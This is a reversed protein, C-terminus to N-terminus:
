AGTALPAPQDRVLTHYLDAYLGGAALLERHRGTEVVRGHEVVVIRDADVITSLRHAIVLATRGQLAVELARQIAAENESDLHSTAEDLIVVAPDKLLMRAIALRQKEGGSLRYGREGVVTDFGDPLSEIVDLVQAARCADRLEANTAGPKAYRLNAGISDHFLHPDQSVVGISRRLTDLRVDRVDHGDFRVHGASVDYLRAVLSILTSKGAGSPGVIAVTEGPAADFDVDHLVTESDRSLSGDAALSALTTTSAAPYAFSVGEFRVAGQPHELDVAGDGDTIANPADLVEFVRDFSVFATLVDVRANTLASLPQYIRGVLLGMAVLDGSPLSGSIVLQSGVWYVGATGLAAVVGLGLMFTRGYIATRVGIDRVKGARDSFAATEDDHRGFLTVLQAGAVGFRETMQSSMAGNHIMSQRTLRQLQRGVRRSPIVFLPLIALALLTLRWELVLMTVFTFAFTFVNSVVTGLTGTVASQAGVVDSNLRSILTGTQSNTFFAIPMRQVHDYLAVRLDFILGEGVSSSLWRGALSLVAEALAAVVLAAALLNVWSRNAQPIADNLLTRVVLPAVVAAGSGAIITALYAFVKARYPRAFQWVRAVVDRRLRADKVADADSPWHRM